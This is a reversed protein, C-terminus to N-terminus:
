AKFFDILDDFKVEKQEGSAMDKVTATSTNIENDGIIIAYKVNKSSAYSMAKGMKRGM